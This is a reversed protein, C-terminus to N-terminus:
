NHPGINQEVTYSMVALKKFSISTETDHFEGLTDFDMIKHQM